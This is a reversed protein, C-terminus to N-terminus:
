YAVSIGAGAEIGLLSTGGKAQGTTFKLRVPVSINDSITFLPAIGIGWLRLGSLDTLTEESIRGDTFVHLTLSESARWAYSVLLEYQNPDTRENSPLLLFPIPVNTNARLRLIAMVSLEDHQFNRRFRGSAILRSGPSFLVVGDLKDKGYISYVGDFSLSTAPDLRFDMGGSLAVEDGPDFEGVDVIPVFKGRYQYLAGVGGVIDDSLTFAWTASPMVNLGAGFQAVRSRFATNSVLYSTAFEAVTLKSKGTPLNLGVGVIVNAPEIHYSGTVQADNLGRLTPTNGGATAYSGRIGISAEKSVPQYLSLLISTESFIEKGNSSWQQYIPLLSVSATQNIISDDRQSLGSEVITTICVLFIIQKLM